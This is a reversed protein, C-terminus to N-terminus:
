SKLIFFTWNWLAILFAFAAFLFLPIPSYINICYRLIAALVFLAVTALLPKSNIELNLSRRSHAISVRSAVMLTLLSFGGIYVIHMGALASVQNLVVLLYGLILSLASVQLGIGVITRQLPKQLINFKFISFLILFAIRLSYALQTYNYFEMLYTINLLLAYIFFELYKSDKAIQDPNLATPTRCIVPVLRAGVGCILNLVFAEGSLIYFYKFNEPSFFLTWFIGFFALSFAFPFFIFGVFPVKKEKLIRQLIFYLIFILQLAFIYVSFLPESVLSFFIQTGCLILALFIEFKSALTSQTMKPVATMLFGMIFSFLFAFFMINAHPRVPYIKVFGAYFGLWLLLGVSAAM